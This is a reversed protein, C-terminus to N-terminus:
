HKGRTYFKKLTKFVDTFYHDGYCLKKLLFTCIFTEGKPILPIFKLGDM